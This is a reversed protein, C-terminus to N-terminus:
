YILQDIFNEFQYIKQFSQFDLKFFILCFTIQGYLEVKLKSRLKQRKNVNEKIVKKKNKKEGGEKNEEEKEDSSSFPKNIFFFMFCVLILISKLQNFIQVMDLSVEMELQVEWVCVEM